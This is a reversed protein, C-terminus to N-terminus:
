LNYIYKDLRVSESKTQCLRLVILRKLSYQYIWKPLGKQFFTIRIYCIQLLICNGINIQKRISVLIRIRM